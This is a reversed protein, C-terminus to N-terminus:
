PIIKSRIDIMYFRISDYIQFNKRDMNNPRMLKKHIFHTENKARGNEAQLIEKIILQQKSM